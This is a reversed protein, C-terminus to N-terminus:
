SIERVAAFGTSLVINTTSAVAPTCQRGHDGDRDGVALEDREGVAEVGVADVEGAIRSGQRLVADRGLVGVGVAEEGSLDEVAGRQQRQRQDFGLQL